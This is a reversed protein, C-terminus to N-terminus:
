WAVKPGKPVGKAGKSPTQAQVANLMGLFSITITMLKM